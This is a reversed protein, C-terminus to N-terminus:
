PMGHSRAAPRVWVAGSKGGLIAEERQATEALGQTEERGRQSCGRRLCKELRGKGLDLVSSVTKVPRM